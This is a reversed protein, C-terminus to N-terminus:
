HISRANVPQINFKGNANDVIVRDGHEIRLKDALWGQIVIKLCGGQVESIGRACEIFQDGGEELPIRLTLVGDITEVPRESTGIVRNQQRFRGGVAWFIRSAALSLFGRGNEGFCISMVSVEDGELTRGLRGPSCRQQHCALDSTHPVKPVARVPLARCLVPYRARIRHGRSPCFAEPQHRETGDV